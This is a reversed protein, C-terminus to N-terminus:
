QSSQGTEGCLDVDAIMKSTTEMSTIKLEEVKRQDTNNSVGTELRKLDVGPYHSRVVDLVHAAVYEGADHIYQKFWTWSSQCKEVIAEPQASRDTPAEKPEMGILDLVPKIGREM